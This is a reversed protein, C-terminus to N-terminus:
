SSLGRITRRRPRLTTVTGIVEDLQFDTTEIDLKDAEIKSFDLIDNIISLLSTGANHVKSM